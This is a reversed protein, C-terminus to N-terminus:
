ETIAEGVPRHLHFHDGAKAARGLLAGHGALNLAALDVDEDAGVFQQMAGELELVQAQQNDVLLVAEPDLLFLSDLGHAGLDVYQRQRRRRYRAGQVHGEASHAIQGDDGGRRRPAQRDLGKHAFMVDAHDLLRDQALGQTAALDVVQM